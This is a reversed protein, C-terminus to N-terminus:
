KVTIILSASASGASNMATITYTTTFAPAVVKKGSAALTEKTPSLIINTADSVSWSITSSQGKAIVAPNALFSSIAPKISKIVSPTPTPTSSPTPTPVFKLILTPTPTPTPTPKLLPDPSLTPTPTPSIKLFLTPAPTPAPILSPTPTAQPSSILDPIPISKPTPTGQSAPPSSSPTPSPTPILKPLLIPTPLPIPMLTSEPILEPKKIKRKQWGEEIEKLIDLFKQEESEYVTFLKRASALFEARKASVRSIASKVKAESPIAASPLDLAASRMDGISISTAGESDIGTQFTLSPHAGDLLIRGNFQTGSSIRDIERRLTEYETQLSTRDSSTSEGQTAQMALERIRNLITINESLASDAAQVLSIGDNANRMAQNLGRVRATFRESVALGGDDDAVSNVRLGNALREIAKILRATTGALQRPPEPISPADLIRLGATLFNAFIHTQKGFLADYLADIRKQLHEQRERLQNLINGIEDKDGLLKEELKKQTEQIVKKVSPSLKDEVRILTPLAAVDVKKFVQELDEPATKEVIRAAREIEKERVTRIKEKEDGTSEKQLARLVNQQLIQKELLDKRLQAADSKKKEELNKVLTEAKDLNKNFGRLQDEAARINGSSFLQQAEILNESAFKLNLKAQKEKNFTFISQLARGTDRLFLRFRGPASDSIKIGANERLDAAADASNGSSSSGGRSESYNAVIFRSQRLARANNETETGFPIGQYNIDPNSFFPIRSCSEDECDYAMITRFRGEPDQYGYAYPYRPNVSEDNNNRDHELGMNHGLEHIFTYSSVCDVDVVSYAGSDGFISETAETMLWALGCFRGGDAVLLNVLDADYEERRSRAFANLDSRFSVAGSTLWESSLADLDANLNGSDNYASDSVVDWRLWRLRMDVNSLEYAQNAEDVMVEVFATAADSDGGISEYADPTMIIVIDAIPTAVSSPPPPTYLATATQRPPLVKHMKDQPLLKPDVLRITHAGGGAYRIEYIGEETHINGAVANEKTALTFRSEPKGELNGKFVKIGGSKEQRNKIEAIFEKDSFLNLRILNGNLINPNLSVGRMKKTAANRKSPAEVMRKQESNLNDEFLNGLVGAMRRVAEPSIRPQSSPPPSSAVEEAEGRRMIVGRDGVAYCVDASPCSIGRLTATGPIDEDIWSTGGDRTKKIGGGAAAFGTNDDVFAISRFTSVNDTRFLNWNLGGNASKLIRGVDGGVWVLLGNRSFVDFLGNLGAPASLPLWAAGGNITKLIKGGSGVAWGIAGNAFYVKYLNESTGSSIRVWTTGGNTTRYIRGANGVATANSVDFAAIDWYYQEAAETNRALSTWVGGGNVTKLLAGGDGAAYCVSFTPCSIGRLPNVTPITQRTWTVGGDSTKLIIGAGGIYPAGGAAYCTRENVCAIDNLDNTVGSSPNAWNSDEQAKANFFASILFFASSLFVASIFLKKMIVNYM